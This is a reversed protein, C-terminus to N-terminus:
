PPTLRSRCRLRWPAPPGDGSKIPARQVSNTRPECYTRKAQAPEQGPNVRGKVERQLTPEEVSEFKCNHRDHTQASSEGAGWERTARNLGRTRSRGPDEKKRARPAFLM